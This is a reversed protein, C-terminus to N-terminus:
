QLIRQRALHSLEVRNSVDLKEYINHVHIKVTGETISLRNAVEKNRLGAAVLEVIEKERVTLASLKQGQEKADSLQHLAKHALLPEIWQRGVSVERICQLIASSATEKLLVGAAGAQVLELVRDDSLTATLVITRTAVKERKLEELVEWGTMGAMQLDLIVIDPQHERVAALAERGNASVAVVTLGPDASLLQRLGEVILPHDDAIVLRIQAMSYM